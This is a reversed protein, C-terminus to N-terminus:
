ETLTKKFQSPSLQTHKKFFKVFNTPEDFGMDYTLEKISVDSVALQRKIELIIFKDVFSKATNGTVAKVIKNLHTYSINMMAAYADANRTQAFHASLLHRFESFQIMWESNKERPALTQKIREAKLLLLKLLTRLMEEKAFTEAFVYENYIENIIHDFALTTSELPPIDPPYLHYNYLRSFTLTDSHVMNRTLFDETFLLLFGDAGPNLDFANVQGASIFMLSGRSYEYPMFDIFHRGQGKTFYLIQYFALRHPQDLPPILRPSRSFLHRLTLVEFEIKEEKNEDRNEDKSKHFFVQPIDDIM